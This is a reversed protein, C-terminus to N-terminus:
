QVELRRLVRDAASYPDLKREAIEDVLRELAGAGLIERTVRGLIRESLLALFRAEARDRRRAASRKDGTRDLYRQVGERLADIGQGQTAVTRQVEPKPRGSSDVLSLMYELETQLRDAGNRDAKNIVFLDAIELIGAKIAQIDDGMGPVLVVAVVDATKVVEVEDQGVGVTEVLIPDYGAADLLDIADNTARSLGGLHGRTAMSRIFVGPDDSHELMRVRDGLIAGGSFASSPDIAVVGVKDHNQRYHAVLRDVLSSKGSGPAGTLGVITARGTHPFVARLLDVAAPSNEEVLSIARALARTDGGRLRDAWDM